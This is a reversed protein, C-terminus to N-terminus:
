QYNIFVPAPKLAVVQEPPMLPKDNKFFLKMGALTTPIGRRAVRYSNLKTSVAGFGDMNVVLRINETPAINTPNTVMFSRFRHVVLLKPGLKKEVAIRDLLAIAANIDVADMTGIQTGPLVGSPMDWEPDLALHVDPQELWRQLYPLEAAVNSWGVQVDLITLCGAGRALAVVQDLVKASTRGRYLGSPGAGGQVVVAIMELACRAPTSPDAAEWRKTEAALAALMVPPPSQGLVGLSPASVNGYYAVIRCTSAGEPLRCVPALSPGTSMSPSIMTTTTTTTSTTVRATTTTEVFPPLTDLAPDITTTSEQAKALPTSAGIVALGFFSLAAILTRAKRINSRVSKVTTTRCAKVDKLICLASASEASEVSLDLRIILHM